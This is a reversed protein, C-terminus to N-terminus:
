SLLNRLKRIKDEAQILPRRCNQIHDFLHSKTAEVDDAVEKGVKNALLDLRQCNSLAMALEKLISELSAIAATKAALKEGEEPRLAGPMAELYNLILEFYEMHAKVSNVNLIQLAAYSLKLEKQKNQLNNEFGELEKKVTSIDPQQAGQRLTDADSM